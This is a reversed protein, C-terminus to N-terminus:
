LNVFADENILKRLLPDVEQDKFGIGCMSLLRKVQQTTLKMMEQETVPAVSLVELVKQRCIPCETLKKGCKNCTVLHGCDLIVCDIDADMCVKCKSTEEDDGVFNNNMLPNREGHLWLQRLLELLKEQNADESIEVGCIELVERMKRESLTLLDEETKIDALSVHHSMKFSRCWSFLAVCPSCETFLCHVLIAVVPVALIVLLVIFCYGLKRCSEAGM